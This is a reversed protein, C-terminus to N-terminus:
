VRISNVFQRVAKAEKETLWIQVPKQGLSRKKADSERKRQAGDKPSAKAVKSNEKADM